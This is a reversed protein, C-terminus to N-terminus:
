FKALNLKAQGLCGRDHNSLHKDLNHCLLSLTGFVKGFIEIEYVAFSCENTSRNFIFTVTNLPCSSKKCKPLLTVICVIPIQANKQRIQGYIYALLCFKMGLDCLFAMMNNLIVVSLFMSSKYHCWLLCIFIFVTSTTSILM